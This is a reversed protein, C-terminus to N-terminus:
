KKSRQLLNECPYDQAKLSSSSDSLVEFDLAKRASNEAVFALRIWALLDARHKPTLLRYIKLVEPKKDRM